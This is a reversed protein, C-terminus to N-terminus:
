TPKTMEIIKEILNNLYIVAEDETLFTEYLNWEKDYFELYIHYLFYYKNDKGRKKEKNIKSGIIPNHQINIIRGVEKMKLYM